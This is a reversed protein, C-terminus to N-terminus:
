SKIQRHVWIVVGIITVIINISTDIDTGVTNLEVSNMLIQLRQLVQIVLSTSAAGRKIGVMKQAKQHVQNWISNSRERTDRKRQDRGNLMVLLLSAATIM